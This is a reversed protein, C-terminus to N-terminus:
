IIGAKRLDTHLEQILKNQWDEVFESVKKSFEKNEEVIEINRPDNWFDRIWQLRAELTENSISDPWNRM